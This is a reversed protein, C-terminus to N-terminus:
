RTHRRCSACHWASAAHSTIASPPPPVHGMGWWFRLQPCLCWTGARGLRAPSSCVPSCDAQMIGLLLLILGGLWNPPFVAPGPGTMWWCSQKPQPPLDASTLIVSPAHYENCARQRIHLVARFPPSHLEPACNPRGLSKSSMLQWALCCLGAGCPYLPPRAPAHTHTHAHTPTLARGPVLIRDLRSIYIYAQSPLM